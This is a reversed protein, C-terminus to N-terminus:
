TTSLTERRSRMEVVASRRFARLRFRSRPRCQMDGAVVEPGVGYGVSPGGQGIYSGMWVVFRHHFEQRDVRGEITRRFVGALERSFHDGIATEHDPKLYIADISEHRRPRACAPAM